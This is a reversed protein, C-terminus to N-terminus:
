LASQRGQETDAARKERLQQSSPARGPLNGRPGMGTPALRAAVGSGQRHHALQDALLGIGRQVLETGPELV